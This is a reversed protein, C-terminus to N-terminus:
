LNEFPEGECRDIVVALRFNAVRQDRYFIAFMRPQGEGQGQVCAMWDAFAVSHSKRLPSISPSLLGGPYTLTRVAQTALKKYNSVTRTFDAEEDTPSRPSYDWLPSCGALCLCIVAMVLVHRMRYM